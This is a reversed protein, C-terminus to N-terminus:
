HSSNLRTSKRDLTLDSIVVEQIGHVKGEFDGPADLNPFAVVSQTIRAKGVEISIMPKEQAQCVSIAVFFTLILCPSYLTNPM